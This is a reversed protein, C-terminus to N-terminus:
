EPDGIAHFVQDSGLSLLIKSAPLYACRVADGKSLAQFVREPVLFNGPEKSPPVVVRITCDPAGGNHAVYFRDGVVGDVVIKAGVALDEALRRAKRRMVWFFFYAMPLLTGSMMLFVWGHMDHRQGLSSSTLGLLLFLLGFFAMVAAAISFIVRATRQRSGYWYAEVAARERPTLRVRTGPVPKTRQDAM